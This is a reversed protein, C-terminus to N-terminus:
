WLTNQNANAAPYTNIRSLSFFNVNLASNTFVKANLTRLLFMYNRGRKKEGRCTQEAFTSQARAPM